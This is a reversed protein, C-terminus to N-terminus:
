PVGVPCPRNTHPPPVGDHRAFRGAVSTAAMTLTSSKLRRPGADDVAPRWLAVGCACNGRPPVHRDFAAGPVAGDRAKAPLGGGFPPRGPQAIGYVSNNQRHCLSTHGPFDLERPLKAGPPFREGFPLLVIDGVRDTQKGFETRPQAERM